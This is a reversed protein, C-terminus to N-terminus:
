SLGDPTATRRDLAVAFGAAPTGLETVLSVQTPTLGLLLRRVEVSVIVLSRRDGLPVASEILLAQPGRRGPLSLTGRRVLWALGGILALVAVTALLARVAAAVDPAGPAQSAGAALALLTM